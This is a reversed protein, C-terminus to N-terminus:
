RGASVVLTPWVVYGLCHEPEILVLAKQRLDRASPTEGRRLYLQLTEVPSDDPRCHLSRGTLEVRRGHYAQQDPARGFRSPGFDRHSVQHPPYAAETQEAYFTWVQFEGFGSSGNLFHLAADGCLASALVRKRYLISWEPHRAFFDEREELAIRALRRLDNRSITELSSDSM